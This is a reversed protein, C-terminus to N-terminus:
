HEERKFRVGPLADGRSPERGPATSASAAWDLQWTDSWGSAKVQVRVPGTAGGLITIGNLVGNTGSVIEYAACFLGTAGEQRQILFPVADHLSTGIGQGAFWTAPAPPAPCLLRMVHEGDIQWRMEFPENVPRRIVNKLHEYGSGIGMKGGTEFGNSSILGGRVHLCWDYAHKRTSEAQFCDLIYRDTMVVARRLTVGPYADAARFAAADFGNGGQFWLCQGESPEQSKGDVAVTNHAVTQKCWTKYEPVSYTIRGPDVFLDRGLAFLIMSLKDPHGHGGGHPGYDIVVSAPAGALDRQLFLYGIGGLNRSAVDVPANTSAPLTDAGAMWAWKGSRSGLAAVAAYRPDGYAAYAWEYLDAFHRIHYPDSDHIIPYSGDPFASILPGEFLSRMHPDSHIPAGAARAMQAHMVLPMMAYAQYAMTGEIWMGEATVCRGMQYRFGHRGDISEAILNTDSLCFGVSAIAANIWTQHNNDQQFTPVELARESVRLFDKEIHERQAATLAPSPRILDYAWACPILGTAEDLAQAYRLGGMFAFLGRHGWRDHRGFGPYVDAYRLLIRAAREAFEPRGTIQFALGLTEAAAEAQYHLSTIYANEAKSSEIVTKEVPCEFKGESVRRLRTGDKPCNLEFIWGGGKDPVELNTALLAEAQRVVNTLAKRVHEAPSAKLRAFDAATLFLHPSAANQAALGRPMALVLALIVTALARGRLTAHAM